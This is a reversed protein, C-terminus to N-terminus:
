SRFRTLLLDHYFRIEKGRNTTIAFTVLIAHVAKCFYPLDGVSTKKYPLRRWTTEGGCADVAALRKTGPGCM